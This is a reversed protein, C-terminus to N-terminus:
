KETQEIFQATAQLFMEAVFSDKLMAKVTMKIIDAMCGRSGGLMAVRACDGKYTVGIRVSAMVFICDFETENSHDHEFNHVINELADLTPFNPSAAGTCGMESQLQKLGDM